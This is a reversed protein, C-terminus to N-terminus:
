LSTSKNRGNSKSVYLAKDARNIFSEIDEHNSYVSVGASITLNEIKENTSHISLTSSEVQKRVGEAFSLAKNNNSGPLLVTFEEGGFRCAIENERVRKLLINSVYRIVKDGVVHGYKDNIYKFHDIDFIILSLASSNKKSIEIEEALRIDFARRNKLNTLPDTESQEKTQKLERKLGELEQQTKNLKDEFSQNTSLINNAESLIDKSIEKISDPSETSQLRKAHLDLQTTSNSTQDHVSKVDGLMNKLQDNLVNNLEELFRKDKDWIYKKFIEESKDYTHENSHFYEDLEAILAKNTKMVYEYCLTFNVLNPPLNHKGLLALSLRLYGSAEEYDHRYSSLTM